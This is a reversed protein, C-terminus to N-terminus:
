EVYGVSRLRELLAENMDPQDAAAPDFGYADVYQIANQSKFADTFAEEFVRGEIERSVPLGLAYLLTPAVDVLRADPLDHNEAIMPGALMWVGRIDHAGSFTRTVFIRDAPVSRGEIQISENVAVPSDPHWTMSFLPRLHLTGGDASVGFVPEGDGFRIAEIKKMLSDPDADPRASEIYLRGQVTRHGFGGRAGLASLLADMDVFVRRPIAPDAKMGHDSLAIVLTSEDVAELIRGVARDVVRYYNPFVDAFRPDALSEFGEFAEPEMHHWFRHGLKDTGYYAISAADPARKRMLALFLDTHFAVEATMKRALREEDNFYGLRDWVYVMALSETSKSGAGRLAAKWLAAAPNVPGGNLGKDLRIEQVFAYEPPHTEPGRAFWSPVCFEFRADPPWSVMWSFLGATMGHDLFVDWFRAAKLDARTAFFGDVGHTEPSVGTAITTWVRPSRIPEESLLTGGAGRERLRKLHPLRGEEMWPDMLDWTAADIGLVLLRPAKQMPGTPAFVLTLATIPLVFVAFLAMCLWGGRAPNSFANLVAEAPHRLRGSRAALVLLRELLLAALAAPVALASLLIWPIGGFFAPNNWAIWLAPPGTAAIMAAAAFFATRFLTHRPM